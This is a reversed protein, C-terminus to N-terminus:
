AAPPRGCRQCSTSSTSDGTLYPLLPNLMKNLLFPKRNCNILRRLYYNVYLVGSFGYVNSEEYM